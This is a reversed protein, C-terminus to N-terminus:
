APCRGAVMLDYGPLHGQRRGAGFGSISAYIIAPNAASVSDYDLGFQALGGPKFNQM